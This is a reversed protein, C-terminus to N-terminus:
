FWTSTDTTYSSSNNTINTNYTTNNNNDDCLGELLCCCCDKLCGGCEKVCSTCEGGCAVFADYIHKACKVVGETCGNVIGNCFNCNTGDCCNVKNCLCAGNQESNVTPDVPTSDNCCNMSFWKCCSISDSSQENTISTEFGYTPPQVFPPAQMPNNQSPDFIGFMNNGSGSPSGPLIEPLSSQGQDDANSMRPSSHSSGSSNNDYIVIVDGGSTYGGENGYSSGEEGQEEEEKEKIGIIKRTIKFVKFCNKYFNFNEDHMNQINSIINKYRSCIINYNILKEFPQHRNAM